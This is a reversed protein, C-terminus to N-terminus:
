LVEIEVKRLDNAYELALQHEIQEKIGLCYETNGLLKINNIRSDRAIFSALEAFPLHMLGMTKGESNVIHIGHELAFNSCDIILTHM